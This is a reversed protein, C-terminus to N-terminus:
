AAAAEEAVESELEELEKELNAKELEKEYAEQYNNLFWKKIIAYKGQKTSAIEVVKEFLVADKEGVTSLFRRMEDITLGKYSQKSANKKIQKRKITYDPFDKRVRILELYANSNIVNAEREFGKSIIIEKAAHNFTINNVKKM